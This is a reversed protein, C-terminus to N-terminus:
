QLFASELFKRIESAHVAFGLGESSRRKFSVVGVVKDGLFVPGGSNGPNLATDTQILEVGGHEDNERRLASVVGSTLSFELGTPHGIIVLRAGVPVDGGRPLLSVPAGTASTRLLALDKRPDAAIVEAPVEDETDYLRVLVSRDAGVVHANTIVNHQSIFFGSGLGAASKVVVVSRFRIDVRHPGQVPIPQDPSADVFYRSAVKAFNRPQVAKLADSPMPAWDLTRFEQETVDRSDALWRNVAEEDTSYGTGENDSRNLGRAVKFTKQAEVVAKAVWASHSRRHILVFGIRQQYIARTTVVTFNYPVKVDETLTPSTDQLQSAVSQALANADRLRRLAMGQALGAMFSPPMQSAQQYQQQASQIDLQASQLQNQLAFYNPNAVSRQGSVFTSTEQTESEVAKSRRIDAPVILLIYESDSTVEIAHPSVGLYSIAGATSNCQDPSTGACEATLEADIKSRLRASDNLAAAVSFVSAPAHVSEWWRSIGADIASSDADGYRIMQLVAAYDTPVASSVPLPPSVLTGQQRQAAPQLEDEALRKAADEPTLTSASLNRLMRIIALRAENDDLVDANVQSLYHTAIDRFSPSASGATTIANACDVQQHLTRIEAATCADSIFSRLARDYYSRSSQGEPSAVLSNPLGGSRLTLYIQHRAENDDITGAEIQTLLAAAMKDFSAREASAPTTRDVCDVQDRLSKIYTATCAASVFAAYITNYGADAEGQAIFAVSCLAIQV